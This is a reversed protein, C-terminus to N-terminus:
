DTLFDPLDAEEAEDDSDERSYTEVTGWAFHESNTLVFAQPIPPLFTDAPYAEGNIRTLQIEDAHAYGERITEAGGIIFFRDQHFRKAYGMAWIVLLAFDASAFRKGTNEKIQRALQEDRTWVGRGRDSLPPLSEHTKRGMIMAHNQTQEKFRQLDEPVNWPLKGNYGIGGNADAAVIIIAKM